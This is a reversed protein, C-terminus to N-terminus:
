YVHGKDRLDNQEEYKEVHERLQVNVQISRFGCIASDASGLKPLAPSFCLGQIQQLLKYCNDTMKLTKNRAKGLM